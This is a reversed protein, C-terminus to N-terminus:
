DGLHASVASGAITAPASSVRHVHGKLNVRNLQVNFTNQVDSVRGDAVVYHNYKDASMITLNHATLYDRVQGAEEASPAFRSRYQEHTLFHHYNPSTPQYMKEALQDLAAKNHQRLWVTVTILKSPDEPGLIQSNAFAGSRSQSFGSIALLAFMLSLTMTGLLKRLIKM